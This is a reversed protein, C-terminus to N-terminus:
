DSILCTQLILMHLGGPASPPTFLRKLEVLVKFKNNKENFFFIGVIFLMQEMQVLLTRWRKIKPAFSLFASLIQCKYRFYFASIGFRLQFRKFLETMMSMM